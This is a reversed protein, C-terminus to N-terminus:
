PQPGWLHGLVLAAAVASPLLHVYQFVRPWTCIFGQCSSSMGKRWLVRSTSSRQSLGIFKANLDFEIICHM